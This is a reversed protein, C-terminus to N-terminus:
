TTNLPPFHSTRGKFEQKTNPSKTRTVSLALSIQWNIRLGKKILEYFLKKTKELENKEKNIYKELNTFIYKSPIKEIISIYKHNIHKEKCKFCFNIKCTDCFYFFKNKHIKCSDYENANEKNQLQNLEKTISHSRLCNFSIQNPNPFYISSIDDCYPFPCKCINNM